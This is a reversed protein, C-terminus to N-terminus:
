LQLLFTKDSSAGKGKGGVKGLDQMGHPTESVKKKRIPHPTTVQTTKYAKINNELCSSREKREREDNRNDMKREKMERFVGAIRGRGPRDEPMAGKKKRM